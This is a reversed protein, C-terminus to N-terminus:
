VVPMAKFSPMFTRCGCNPTPVTSLTSRRSSSVFSTTRKTATLLSEVVEFLNGGVDPIWLAPFGLEDLEAAAADAAGRDGYRLEGSWLGVGSLPFTM